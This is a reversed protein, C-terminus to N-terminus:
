NLVQYEKDSKLNFMCDYTATSHVSLLCVLFHTTIAAGYLTELSLDFMSSLM